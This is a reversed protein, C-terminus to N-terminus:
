EIEIRHSFGIGDSITLQRYGLLKALDLFTFLDEVAYERLLQSTRAVATLQALLARAQYIGEFGQVGMAMIILKEAEAGKAFIVFNPPYPRSLQQHTLGTVFALRTERTANPMQSARAKYVEESTLPPYYYGIHREGGDEDQDQGRGGDQVQDTAKPEQAWTQAPQLLLVLGALMAWLIIRTRM